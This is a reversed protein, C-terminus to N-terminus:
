NTEPGTPNDNEKPTLNITEKKIVRIKANMKEQLTKEVEEKLINGNRDITVSTKKLNSSIRVQGMYNLTLNNGLNHTLSDQTGLGV